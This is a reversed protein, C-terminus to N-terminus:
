VLDVEVWIYADDTTTGELAHAVIQGGATSTLRGATTADRYLPAGVSVDADDVQARIVGRVLSLFYYDAPVASVTFGACPADDSDGVVVGNLANSILSIDTATTLDKRIEELLYIKTTSDAGTSASNRQIYYYEKSQGDTTVALKGGALANETIASDLNLTLNSKRRKVASPIDMDSRLVPVQSLPVSGSFLNNADTSLATDGNKCVFYASRDPTNFEIFQGVFAGKPLNALPEDPQFRHFPFQRYQQIASSNAGAMEINRRSQDFVEGLLDRDTCDILLGVDASGCVCM